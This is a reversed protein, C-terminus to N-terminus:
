AAPPQAPLTGQPVGGAEGSPDVHPRRGGTQKGRRMKPTREAGEDDPDDEEDEDDFRFQGEIFSISDLKAVAEEYTHKGPILLGLGNLARTKDEEGLQFIFTAAELSLITPVEPLFTFDEGDYRGELKTPLHNIVKINSM